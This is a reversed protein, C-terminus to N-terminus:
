ARPMGCTVTIANRIPANKEIVLMRQVTRVVGSSGSLADSRARDQGLPTATM